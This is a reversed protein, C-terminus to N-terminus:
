HTRHCHGALIALLRGADVPKAVVDAIGLDRAIREADREGSVLIFPVSSTAPMHQQHRRLEAGDMVPMNLDVVMASPRETELMVLAERGNCATHVLYGEIVLWIVMLERTEPDDDVVLITPRAPM